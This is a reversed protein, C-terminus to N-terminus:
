PRLTPQECPTLDSYVPLRMWTLQLCGDDHSLVPPSIIALLRTSGRAGRARRKGATAAVGPQAATPDTCTVVSEGM